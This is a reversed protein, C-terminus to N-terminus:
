KSANSMNVDVVYGAHDSLRKNGFQRVVTGAGPPGCV